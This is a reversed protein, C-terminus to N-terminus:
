FLYRPRVGKPVNWAFNCNYFSFYTFYLNIARPLCDAIRWNLTSTPFRPLHRPGLQAWIRETWWFTANTSLWRANINGYLSSKKNPVPLTFASWNNRSLGPEWTNENLNANMLSIFDHHNKGHSKHDNLNEIINLVTTGFSQM